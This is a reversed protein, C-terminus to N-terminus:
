TFPAAISANAFPGFADLRPLLERWGDEGGQEAEEPQQEYLDELLNINAQGDIDPFEPIADQFNFETDRPRQIVDLSPSTSLHTITTRARGIPLQESVHVPKWASSMLCSVAKSAGMLHAHALSLDSFKAIGGSVKARNLCHESARIASEAREFADLRTILVNSPSNLPSHAMAPVDNRQLSTLCLQEDIHRLTDSLEKLSAVTTEFNVASSEPEVESQNEPNDQGTSQPSHQFVPM